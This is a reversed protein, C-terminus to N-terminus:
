VLHQELQDAIKRNNSLHPIKNQGGLKGISDMYKEFANARLPKIVLPRLVGDQILDKYYINQDIM